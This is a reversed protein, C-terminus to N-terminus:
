ARGLVIVRRLGWGDMWPVRGYLEAEATLRREEYRRWEYEFVPFCRPITDPSPPGVFPVRLIRLEVRETGPFFEVCWFHHQIDFGTYEYYIRPAEEDGGEELIRGLEQLASRAGEDLYGCFREGDFLKALAELTPPRSTLCDEFVPCDSERFRALDAIEWRIRRAGGRVGVYRSSNGM